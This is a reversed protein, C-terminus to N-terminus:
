MTRGTTSINHLIFTKKGDVTMEPMKTRPKHNGALPGTGMVKNLADYPSNELLHSPSDNSRPTKVMSKALHM